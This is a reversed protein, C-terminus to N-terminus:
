ILLWRLCELHGSYPTNNMEAMVIKRLGARNPIYTRGHYRLLGKIDFNYMDFQYDSPDIHVITKVM